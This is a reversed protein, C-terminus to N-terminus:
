GSLDIDLPDLPVQVTLTPVTTCTNLLLIFLMSTVLLVIVLFKTLTWQSRHPAPECSPRRIPRLVPGEYLAQAHNQNEDAHEGPRQLHRNGCFHTASSRESHMSHRYPSAVKWTSPVVDSAGDEAMAEGISKDAAAQKYM